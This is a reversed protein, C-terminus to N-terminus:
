WLCGGEDGRAPRATQQYFIAVVDSLFISMVVCASKSNQTTASDSSHSSDSEQIGAPIVYLPGPWRRSAPRLAAYKYLIELIQPYFDHAYIWLPGLRCTQHFWGLVCLKVLWSDSSEPWTILHTLAARSNINCCFGAAVCVKTSSNSREPGSVNVLM